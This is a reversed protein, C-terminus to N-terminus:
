SPIPSKTIISQAFRFAEESFYFAGMKFLNPRLTIPQKQIIYM